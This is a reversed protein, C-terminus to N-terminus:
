VRHTVDHRAGGEDYPILLRDCILSELYTSGRGPIRSNVPRLPRAAEDLRVSYGTFLRSFTTQFPVFREGRGPVRRELQDLIPPFNTSGFNGIAASNKGLVNKSCPSM